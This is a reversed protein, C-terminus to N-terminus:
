RFLKADIKRQRKLRERRAKKQKIKKKVSPKIYCDNKERYTEVVKEKKCKRIFRRILRDSSENRRLRVQVNASM